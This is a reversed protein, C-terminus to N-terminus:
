SPSIQTGFLVAFNNKRKKKKFHWIQQQNLLIFELVKKDFLIGRTSPEGRILIQDIEGNNDLLVMVGLYFTNEGNATSINSLSDNFLHYITTNDALEINSNKKFKYTKGGFEFEKKRQKYCIKQNSVKELISDSIAKMSETALYHCNEDKIFQYYFITDQGNVINSFFLFFFAIYINPKM